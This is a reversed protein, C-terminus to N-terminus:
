NNQKDLDRFIELLTELSSDREPMIGLSNLLRMSEAKLDARKLSSEHIFNLYKLIWFANFHHFFRKQFIREISCNSMLELIKDISQWNLLFSQLSTDLHSFVEEIEARNLSWFKSANSFFPKLQGFAEFSYTSLLENSGEIWRKMAAGTGFPVRDSIRPAPFVTSTNINGYNGLLVLKHLFYFDEGAKRRNMGGQKVYASAKLAFSSGVTHIAHPYGSYAMANKYYRMHLEYRIIGDRESNSLGKYDLPHEFNILFFGAFPNDVFANEITQLYNPSVTSDADLSVIIGDTTGSKAIKRIAEDMGIKRAWGVGAWKKPLAHAYIRQVNFFLDSHQLQWNRICKLTSNNQSVAEAPSNEADNIVVIVSVIGKPPSCKALSNLTTLIDPENFCPIVVFVTAEREQVDLYRAYQENQLNLYRNFIDMDSFSYDAM